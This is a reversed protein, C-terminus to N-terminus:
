TRSNILQSNCTEITNTIIPFAITDWKYPVKRAAHSAFAILLSVIESAFSLVCYNFWVILVPAVTDKLGTVLLYPKWLFNVLSKNVTAM